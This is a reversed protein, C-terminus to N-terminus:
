QLAKSQGIIGSDAQSAILRPESDSRSQRLVRNDRELRCVRIMAEILFSYHQLRAESAADFTGAQLADLTIVGWCEGELYLSMGMCDHVALPQEPKADLLGDYPDALNSDPAFRVPQRSAMITALRPHHAVVFHRGLAERALGQMAVPKLYDQQKQLGVKQLLVVAGCSFETMLNSVLRQLRVPAPLEAVLDALLITPLVTM